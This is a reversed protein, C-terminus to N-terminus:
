NTIDAGLNRLERMRNRLRHVSEVPLRTNSLEGRIRDLESQYNVKDRYQLTKNRLVTAQSRAQKLELERKLNELQHTQIKSFHSVSYTPKKIHKFEPHLRLQASYM